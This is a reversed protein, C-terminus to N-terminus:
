DLPISVIRRAARVIAEDVMRGDDDVFVGGRAAEYRELLRKAAHIEEDTPTFTENVIEIQAPHITARGAFGMRRLAVTSRRFADLDRFDTSVPGVPPEIGAAASALVIQARMPALERDDESPTIGLEASLDAEGIALRVVGPARAIAAADLVGAATEILAVIPLDIGDLEKVLRTIDDPSSVKPLSIGDPGAVAIAEVDAALPEGSNVRVWVSPSSATRARLYEAVARRAEEKEHIPVADELDLILADAGRSAAKALKDSNGPVYLWSRARM